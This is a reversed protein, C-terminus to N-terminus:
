FISPLVSQVNGCKQRTQNKARQQLMHCDIGGALDENVDYFTQTMTCFYEKLCKKKSGNIELIYLWNQVHCMATLEASVIAHQKKEEKSFYL